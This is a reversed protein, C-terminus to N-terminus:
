LILADDSAYKSDTLKKGVHMQKSSRKKEGLASLIFFITQGAKLVQSPDQKYFPLRPWQVPQLSSPACSMGRLRSPPLLVDPM